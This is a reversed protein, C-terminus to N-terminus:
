ITHIFLSAEFSQSTTEGHVAQIYISGAPVILPSNYQIGTNRESFINIRQSHIRTSDKLLTIQSDGTSTASWGYILTSGTVITTVVNTAVGSLITGVSGTSVIAPAPHAWLESGIITARDASTQDKLEVAGLQIDGGAISISGGAVFVSGIGAWAPMNIISGAIFLAGSQDVKAGYNGQGTADTIFATGM